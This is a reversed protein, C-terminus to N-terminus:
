LMCVHVEDVDDDDDFNERDKWGAEHRVGRPRENSVSAGGMARWQGGLGMSARRGRGGGEGRGMGGYRDVKVNTYQGVCLGVGIGAALMLVAALAATSLRLSGLNSGLNGNPASATPLEAPEPPLTQQTLQFTSSLQQAQQAQQASTRPSTLSIASLSTASIPDPDPASPHGSGSRHGAVHGPVPGPLAADKAPPTPTWANLAPEGRASSLTLTADGHGGTTTALDAPPHAAMAALIQGASFARPDSAVPDEESMHDLFSRPSPVAHSAAHSADHYAAHSRLAIGDEASGIPGMGSSGMGSPDGYISDASIFDGRAAAAGAAGELLAGGAGGAGGGAVLAGCWSCSLCDCFM